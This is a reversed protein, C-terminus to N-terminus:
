KEKPEDGEKSQGGLERCVGASDFVRDNGHKLIDLCVSSSEPSQQQGLEDHRKLKRRHKQKDGEDPCDDYRPRSLLLSRNHFHGQAM